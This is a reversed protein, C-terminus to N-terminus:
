GDGKRLWFLVLGMFFFLFGITMFFLYSGISDPLSQGTAAVPLGVAMELDVWATSPILILMWTFVFSTIPRM